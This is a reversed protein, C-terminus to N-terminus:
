FETKSFYTLIGNQFSLSYMNDGDHYTWDEFVGYSYVSRSKTDPEGWSMLVMDKNMGIYVEENKFKITEKHEKDKPTPTDTIIIGENKDKRYNYEGEGANLVSAYLFVNVITFFTVFINIMKWGLLEPCNKM